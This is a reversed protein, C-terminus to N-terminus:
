NSLRMTVNESTDDWRVTAKFPNIIPDSDGESEVEANSALTDNEKQEIVGRESRPFIYIVQGTRESNRHKIRQRNWKRQTAILLAAREFPKEPVGTAGNGKLIFDLMRSCLKKTPPVEIRFNELATIQKPTPQLSAPIKREAEEEIAQKQQREEKNRKKAGEERGQTEQLRQREEVPNEKAPTKYKEMIDEKDGVRVVVRYLEFAERMSKFSTPQEVPKAVESSEYVHTPSQLDPVASFTQSSLKYVYIPKELIEKEHAQLTVVLQKREEDSTKEYFVKRDQHGYRVLTRAIAYAIDDSARVMKPQQEEVKTAKSYKHGTKIEAKDGQLSAYYVFPPKEAQEPTSPESQPPEETTPRFQPEREGM